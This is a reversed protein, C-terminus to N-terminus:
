WRTGGINGNMWLEGLRYKELWQSLELLNLHVMETQGSHKECVLISEPLESMADVLIDSHTTIILQTRKSAKILLDALKPIVDPHLGLEPEEICILKPPNPDCLIALLCLYRLTGDSLRSCPISYEQEIFFIQVTGGEIQFHIDSFADYFDHLGNIVANKAKPNKFLRNLFMGLNSFDEELRDNRMDTPQPSRFIVNRGFSWERYIRINEYIESLDFLVPYHEPDRRQNLISVNRTITEKALNQEGEDNLKGIVPSGHNYLYYFFPRTEGPYPESNEIQEDELVFSQNEQRFSISHRLSQKGKPNDIVANISAIADSDGKWIWEVTGGGKRIVERLDFPSSRLLNIVEILNSKGSGNPGILINLNSLEIQNSKSGFSLINNPNITKIM